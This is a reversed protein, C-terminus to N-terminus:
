HTKKKTPGASSASSTTTTGVTTTTTTTTTTSATTTSTSSGTVAAYSSGVRMADQYVTSVLPSPARYFGEKLYVGDGSYLTALYTKPIVLSGDIWGEVFGVSPNASWKIHLVFDYWHNLSLTVPYWSKDNQATCTSLSVSGGRVRLRLVAPAKSEDVQYVVNPGCGNNASDHLQLFYNWTTAPTPNFDTPFMTSWGYWEESGDYGGTQSQSAEVESREGGTALPVDGANVVFKAAYSGERVPSTVISIDGPVAQVRSWQSLDGTEYNGTWSVTAQVVKAAAGCGIAALLVFVGCALGTRKPSVFFADVARIVSVMGRALSLAQAARSMATLLWGLPGAPPTEGERASAGRRLSSLGLGAESPETGTAPARKGEGLLGPATVGNADNGFPSRGMCAM